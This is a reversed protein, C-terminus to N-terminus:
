KKSKFKVDKFEGEDNEINDLWHVLNYGYSELVKEGRIFEHLIKDMIEVLCIAEKTKYVSAGKYFRVTMSYSTDGIYDIMKRFDKISKSLNLGRKPSNATFGFLGTGDIKESTKLMQLLLRNTPSEEQAKNDLEFKVSKVYIGKKRNREIVEWVEGKKYKASIEACTSLERFLMDLYEKVMRAPTDGKSGFAASNNQIFIFQRGKRNDILVKCHPKSTIDKAEDKMEEYVKVIKVNHVAILSIEEHEIIVKALLPDGTNVKVMQLNSNTKLREGLKKRLYEEDVKEHTNKDFLDKTDSPVFKYKYVYYEAM